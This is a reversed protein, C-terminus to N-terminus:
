VGAGGNRIVAGFEATERAATPGASQLRVQYLTAREGQTFDDDTFSFTLQTSGVAYQWFFGGTTMVVHGATVNAPAGLLSRVEGATTDLSAVLKGSDALSTGGVLTVRGDASFQVERAPVAMTLREGTRKNVYPLAIRRKGAVDKGVLREVDGRSM